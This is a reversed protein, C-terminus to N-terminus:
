SGGPRVLLAVRKTGGETAQEGVSAFGLQKHFAMSQENPPEVNVECTAPRDGAFHFLYQYFLKGIGKRQHDPSVVIRDVYAFNTYNATFYQYNLSDYAAGDTMVLLFGAITASLKDEAVMFAAAQDHLHQLTANDILNVDPVADTNLRLIEAYDEVNAERLRILENSFASPNM